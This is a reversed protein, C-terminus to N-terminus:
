LTLIFTKRPTASKDGKQQHSMHIRMYRGSPHCQQLNIIYIRVHQECLTAIKINTSSHSEPNKQWYPHCTQNTLTFVFTSDLTNKNVLSRMCKSSCTAIKFLKLKNQHLYPPTTWLPPVNTKYTLFGRKYKGSRTAINIQESSTAIKFQEPPFLFTSDM